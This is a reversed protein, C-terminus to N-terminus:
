VILELFGDSCVRCKNVMNAETSQRLAVASVRSCLGPAARRMRVHPNM